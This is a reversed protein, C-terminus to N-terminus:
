IDKGRESIMTASDAILPEPSLLNDENVNQLWVESIVEQENAGARQQQSFDANAEVYIQPQFNEDDQKARVTVKLVLDEFKQEVAAIRDDLASSCMISVQSDLNQCKGRFLANELTEPFRSSFILTIIICGLLIQTEMDDADRIM